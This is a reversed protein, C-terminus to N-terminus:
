PTSAGVHLPNDCTGGETRGALFPTGRTASSTSYVTFGQWTRGSGTVFGSLTRCLWTMGASTANIDAAYTAEARLEGTPQWCVLTVHDLVAPQADPRSGAFTRFAGTDDLCGGASPTGAAPTSSETQAGAEDEPSFVALLEDFALAGLMVLLLVFVAAIALCGRSPRGATAPETESM